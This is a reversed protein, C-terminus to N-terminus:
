KGPCGSTSDIGVHSSQSSQWIYGFINLYLTMSIALHHWISHWIIHWISINPVDLFMQLFTLPDAECCTVLYISHCFLYSSWGPDVDPPKGSLIGTLIHFGTGPQVSQITSTWINPLYKSRIPHIHWLPPPELHHYHALAWGHALYTPQLINCYNAIYHLHQLKWCKGHITLQHGGPANSRM